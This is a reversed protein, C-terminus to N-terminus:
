EEPLDSPMKTWDVNNALVLQKRTLGTSYFLDTDSLDANSFNCNRLYAGRFNTRQLQASCLQANSLNAGDLNAYALIAGSLDAEALFSSRLDAARLNTARLSAKRLDAWQLDAARLNAKDLSAKEARASFLRAGFLCANLFKAGSINSRSFDSNSLDASIFKAERLNAWRFTAKRASSWSINAFNLDASDLNAFDLSAYQMEFNALRTVLYQHDLSAGSFSMELALDRERGSELRRLMDLITTRQGQNRHSWNPPWCVAQRQAKQELEETKKIIVRSLVGIAAFLALEAAATLQEAERYTRPQGLGDVGQFPMGRALNEDFLRILTNRRLQVEDLQLATFENGLFSLIEVTVRAAHTLRYWRRLGEGEDIDGIPLLRHLEEILRRLRRAALYEGFTKHTLEFTEDSGARRFFFATLLALAGKEAGDKFVPLMTDLKELRAIGAVDALTTSRGGGHQWVALGISEFLRNFQEVTLPKVDAIQRKEGWSREWVHRLLSAYVSNVSSSADLASPDAARTIALLHNLLPQDAFDALNENGAIEAPVCALAEGSLAGWCRWWDQRQDNKLREGPDDWDEHAERPAYGLVHFIQRERNLEGQLSEVILARGALVVQIEFNHNNKLLLQHVATVLAAAADRGRKQDADLEDLGDLILLLRREGEDTDLPNAPFDCLKAYHGIERELDLTKLYHLPVLLTPIMSERQMVHAAWWKVFSSKGSGPGGAVVRLADSKDFPELWADFAEGLDVVHHREKQRGHEGELRETWYGRLPQYLQRLSFPGAFLPADLESALHAGYALWSLSQHLARAPESGLLARLQDLRDRQQMARKYFFDGFRAPLRQAAARAAAPETGLYVLAVELNAAIPQLVPLDRPRRLFTWPVEIRDLDIKAGGLQLLHATDISDQATTSFRAADALDDTADRLALWVLRWAAEETSDEPRFKAVLDVVAGGVGASTGVMGAIGLKGLPQFLEGLLTQRTEKLASPRTLRVASATPTTM